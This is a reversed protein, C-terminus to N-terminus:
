TPLPKGAQENVIYEAYWDPWNEDRRGGARKEHEGHAAEARRLTAALDAASGFTTGGEVRGPLRGTIEQLVWGNGDPDSFSAFSGYSRRQPDPGDAPGDPGLHFVESVDVSRGVLEDRAAQLDPVILFQNQASGPVSSTRNTGFQVSCASGPPTVDQRWGLSRYFATARDVDSVPITVVELKMDVKGASAEGATDDTRVEITGSM